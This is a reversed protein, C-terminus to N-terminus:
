NDTFYNLTYLSKIYYNYYLISYNNCFSCKRTMHGSYDIIVCM